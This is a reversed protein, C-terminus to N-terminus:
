KYTPLGCLFNNDIEITTIQKRFLIGLIENLMHIYSNAMMSDEMHKSFMKLLLKIM